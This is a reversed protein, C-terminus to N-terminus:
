DWFYDSNQRRLLAFTRDPFPASQDGVIDVDIYPSVLHCTHRQVVLIFV